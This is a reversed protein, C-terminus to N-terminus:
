AWTIGRNVAIAGSGTVKDNVAGGIQWSTLYGEGTATSPTSDTLTLQFEIKTRNAIANRLEQHRVSDPDLNFNFSISNKPVGVLVGASDMDLDTVDIEPANVQLDFSTLHAIALLVTPSGPASIKLTAGQSQIAPM